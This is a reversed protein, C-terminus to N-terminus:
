GINGSIVRPTSKFKTRVTEPGECYEGISPNWRTGAERHLGSFTGFGRIKVKNGSDVEATIAQFAYELVGVVRDVSLGTKSAVEQALDKRNM